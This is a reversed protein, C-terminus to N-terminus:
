EGDRQIVVRVYEFRNSLNDINRRTSKLWEHYGLVSMGTEVELKPLKKKLDLLWERGFVEIHFRDTDRLCLWSKRPKRKVPGIKNDWAKMVERAFLDAVQIRSNVKSCAFSIESDLFPEWTSTGRALAYLFGSNHAGEPRMDFTFKVQERNNAAFNRMSSLLEMFCKYYDLGAPTQPFIERRAMLDVAIGFGGLGSNALLVTLDTYRKKNEPDSFQAFDGQNADCDNAHFPIGGCRQDWKEQLAVWQEEFGIVGAVAFVREKTEDASEDGYVSVVFVVRRAPM